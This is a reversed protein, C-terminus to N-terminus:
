FRYEECSLLRKQIEPRGRTLHILCFFKKQFPTNSQKKHSKQVKTDPNMYIAQISWLRGVLVGRPGMIEEVDVNGKM